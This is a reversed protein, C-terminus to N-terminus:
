STYWSPFAIDDIPAPAPAADSNYYDQIAAILFVVIDKCFFRGFEVDQGQSSVVISM